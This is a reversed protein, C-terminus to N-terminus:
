VARLVYRFPAASDYLWLAVVLDPDPRRRRGWCGGCCGLSVFNRLRNGTAQRYEKGIAGASAAVLVAVSAVVPM